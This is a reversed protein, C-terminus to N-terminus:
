DAEKFPKNSSTSVSVISDKGLEAVEPMTDARSDSPVFVRIAPPYYVSEAKRLASSAEVGAQNLAEYWVQSCYNRCVKMVEAKLTEETEVM